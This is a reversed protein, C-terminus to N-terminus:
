KDGREAPAKMMGWLTDADAAARSELGFRINEPDPRDRFSHFLRDWLSLFATYNSDTEPRHRSHHVKHMAPTVILFSMLGDLRKPLAVNAHHFQVVPFMLLEYLALHWLPAGLVLIIPIRLLSSLAIEGIHFRNATTVDMRGDSHHVRHFRWLFRVRHNMRHWCYTWLDFVVIALVAKGWGPGPIWQLLGIRHVEATRAAWAWLTAFLVAIMAANIAWLLLNLIGHNLRERLGGRFLPLFPCVSEWVLLASLVGLALWGRTEQLTQAFLDM